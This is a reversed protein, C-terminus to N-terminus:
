EEVLLSDKWNKFDNDISIAIKEIIIISQFIEEDFFNIKRGIIVNKDNTKNIYSQDVIGDNHAILHRIQFLKNILEIENDSLSSMINISFENIIRKVAKDLNQFSIVFNEQQTDKIYLSLCNKGFSDFASVISEVVKYKLYEKFREDTQHNSQDLLKKALDLNATFIQLSNNIGCDPCYAFKGYIAYELTCNDCTITTELNKEAYYAIHHKPSTRKFDLSLKIFSNKTSSRLERDWKKAGDEFINQVENVIYSNIFNIQDKTYFKEQTGEYGCYPCFCKDYGEQLIGTGFKIKFYGECEPNPCERGILGNEDLKLPISFM